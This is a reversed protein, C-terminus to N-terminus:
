KTEEKTLGKTETDNYHDRIKDRKNDLISNRIM